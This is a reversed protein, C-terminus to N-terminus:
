GAPRKNKIKKRRGGEGMQRRSLHMCYHKHCEDHDADHISHFYLGIIITIGSAPIGIQPLLAPLCLLIGGPVSPAAVSLLYVTIFLSLLIEWTMTIGYVRSLFLASILLTVCGGDMNIVIGLPISFSYIKPSIELKDRCTQM